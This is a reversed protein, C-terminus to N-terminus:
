READAWRVVAMDNLFMPANRWLGRLEARAAGVRPLEFLFVNVADVALMRQAEGWLRYQEEPIAARNAAALLARFAPSDYRFYYGADGYIGIDMPEVHSIITLDYNAEAYVTELWRAWEVSELEVTVGVAALQAAIIEASRQAYTTPPVTITLELGAVGAEALLARARAPDHPYMGTLDVYAPHHPAFHSGIPTGYGFMAGAVVQERDVAHALARRVLLNDFPPRSNNIALITEGETTGALVQFEPDQAIQEAQEVAALNPLYDIDGARLATVQAAADGIFRFVVEDLGVADVERYLPNRELVVSEGPQWSRFRFPGTGVPHTANDAATEPAVIVSVNESLNFLFLASPEALTVTVTHEDPTVISEMQTFYSRRSNTSDPAANREFTFKVDGSDFATGDSFRVGQRLAFTYTRGDPSVEWREALGPLVRGSEDIRTLGEFVNVLTIQAIAAAPNITPDLVPPELQLGVVVSTRPAVVAEDGCGALALAMAGFALAM